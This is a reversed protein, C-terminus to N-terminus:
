VKVNREGCAQLSTLRKAEIYYAMADGEDCTCDQQVFRSLASLLVGHRRPSEILM